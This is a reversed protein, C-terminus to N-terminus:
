IEVDLSAKAGEAMGERGIMSKPLSSIPFTKRKSM